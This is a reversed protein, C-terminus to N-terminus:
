KEKLRVSELISFFLQHDEKTGYTIFRIGVDNFIYTRVDHEPDKEPPLGYTILTVAHNSIKISEKRVYALGQEFQKINDFIRQPTLDGMECPFFYSKSAKDKFRYVTKGDKINPSMTSPLNFQVNGWAIGEGQVSTADQANVASAALFFLLAIAVARYM